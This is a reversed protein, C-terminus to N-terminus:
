YVHQAIMCVVGCALCFNAPNKTAANQHCCCSSSATSARGNRRNGAANKNWCCSCSTSPCSYWISSASGVYSSTSFIILFHFFVRRRVCRSARSRCASCSVKRRMRPARAALSLSPSLSLSFSLPRSLARALSRIGLWAPGTQSNWATVGYETSWV